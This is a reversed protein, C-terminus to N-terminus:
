RVKREERRQARRADVQRAVAFVFPAVIATTTARTVVGLVLPVLGGIHREFIARLAVIILSALISGVLTALVHFITGALLLRAALMRSILFICVLVFMNLCIPAGPQLADVFYGIIFAIAAGRAANFGLLGIYIILPLVLDPTLYEFPLLGDILSECIALAIGLGVFALNRM